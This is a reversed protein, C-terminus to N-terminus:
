SSKPPQSRSSWPENLTLGPLYTQLVGDGFYDSCFPSSTHSLHYLVQKALAFGRTWVGSGDFWVWVAYTNELM